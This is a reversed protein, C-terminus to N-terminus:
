YSLIKVFPLLEWLVEVNRHDEVKVPSVVYIQKHVQHHVMSIFSVCLGLTTQDMEGIVASDSMVTIGSTSPTENGDSM